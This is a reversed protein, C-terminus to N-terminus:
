LMRNTGTRYQSFLYELGHAVIPDECWHKQSFDLDRTNKKLDLISNYVFRVRCGTFMHGQTRKGLYLPEVVELAAKFGYAALKNTADVASDPAGNGVIRIHVEERVPVYQLLCLAVGEELQGLVLLMEHLHACARVLKKQSLSASVLQVAFFVSPQLAAVGLLFSETKVITSM